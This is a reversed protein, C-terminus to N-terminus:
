GSKGNNFGRDASYITFVNYIPTWIVAFLWGYAYSEVFGLLLSTLSIWKFGPLLQQWSEYMAHEPFLFDFIVCLVFLIVLFLSTAHGVAIVSLGTKM